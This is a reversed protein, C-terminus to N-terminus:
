PYYEIVLRPRNAATGNERSAFSSTASLAAGETRDRVRWGFNAATGAVFSAVDAAVSWSMPGVATAASATASGAVAPQNNSTIVTETWSATVRHLDYTRGAAASTAVLTLTAATVRADAFNACATLDFRVFARRNALASSQVSLTAATGFNSGARLLDSDVYSDAAASLTCTSLPVSAAASVVTLSRPSLGLAAAAALGAFVACAIAASAISAAVLSARRM